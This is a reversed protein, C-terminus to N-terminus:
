KFRKTICILVKLAKHHVRLDAHIPDNGHPHMIHIDNKRFCTFGDHFLVVGALVIQINRKM